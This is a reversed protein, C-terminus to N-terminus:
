THGLRPDDYYDQINGPLQDNVRGLPRVNPIKPGPAGNPETGQDYLNQWLYGQADILFGSAEGDSELEEEFFPLNCSRSVVVTEGVRELRHTEDHDYISIRGLNPNANLTIIAGDLTHITRQDGVRDKIHKGNMNEHGFNFVGTGDIGGWFEVKTGGVGYMPNVIVVQGVGVVTVTWGGSTTYRYANDAPIFELRGTPATASCSLPPAANVTIQATASKGESTATITAIGASVGTVV